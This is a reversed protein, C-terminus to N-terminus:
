FDSLNMQKKKLEANFLKNIEGNLIPTGYVGDHGPNFQIDQNRNKIVFDAIQSGAVKRIEEHTRELLIEMESGLKNLENYIRWMKPSSVPCKISASILEALPMLSRFPIADKPKYGEPRDALEEVRHMVGITLPKGCVPCINNIKLSDKPNLCVNCNRHGDYHYKGEESFFEITEKFGEKTKFAKMINDYSLKDLEFVNAERGLKWPWCSHTDSNSILTFRDLASLRWNMAPDSSLGTELAHIHKTQDKFCDEIRNFGSKSGFLSFWPTWIHAPVIEIRSDINKLDKVFQYSPIKFIPRGDYDVRGYSKLYETIQEVTDFSPAYVLLHIRRGLGDQSYILSIETQLIFPFNDQTYYIGDEERVLYQKLEAYWEPHTFDGTGLLNLGKIKGWRALEPISVRKSTGRAFRGHIHLDAIVKM